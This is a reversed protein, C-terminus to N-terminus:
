SATNAPLTINGVPINETPGHYEIDQDNEHEM